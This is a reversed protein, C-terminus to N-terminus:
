AQHNGNGFFIGVPAQLEQIQDLFAIDTQHLRDILKFIPAAILKGGVGGPPDALGDRAGDSILRAGDTDRHMHDFGDVLQHAGRALHQVLDAALRGRVLQRDLQRHRDVLHAFHEFDGLLRDAKLGRDAVLFVAMQAIKDLVLVRHLGQVRGDLAVQAFGRSPHQGRQRRALFPDQAHTETDAHVGIM